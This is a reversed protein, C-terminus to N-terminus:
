EGLQLYLAANMMLFHEPAVLAALQQRHLDRDLRDREIFGCAQQQGRPVDAQQFVGFRLNTVEGVM